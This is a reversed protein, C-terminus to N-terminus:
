QNKKGDQGKKDDQEEDDQGKVMILLLRAVFKSSLVSVIYMEVCEYTKWSIELIVSDDSFGIKQVYNKQIEYTKKQEKM